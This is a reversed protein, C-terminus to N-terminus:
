GLISSEGIAAWRSHIEPVTEVWASHRVDAVAEPGAEGLAGGASEELLDAAVEAAAEVSAAV